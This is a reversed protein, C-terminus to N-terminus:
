PAQSPRLVLDLRGKTEGPRLDHVAFVARSGPASARLHIHPGGGRYGTPVPSEFRYSGDRRTFLTARGAWSPPASYGKPGAQFLELRARAIPACNRSSRVVGVLIHGKGVSSRVPAGPRYGPVRSGPLTPRCTRRTDPKAEPSLASWTVLLALACIAFSLVKM